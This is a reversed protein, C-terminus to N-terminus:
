KKIDIFRGNIDLCISINKDLDILFTNDEFRIPLQNQLANEINQLEWSSTGRNSYKQNALYNEQTDQKIMGIDKLNNCLLEM